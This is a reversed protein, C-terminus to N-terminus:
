ANLTPRRGFRGRSTGGCYGGPLWGGSLPGGFKPDGHHSDFSVYVPKEKVLCGSLTPLGASEDVLGATPAVQNGLEAPSVAWATPLDRKTETDPKDLPVTNEDM